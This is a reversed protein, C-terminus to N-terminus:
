ILPYTLLCPQRHGDGFIRQRTDHESGALHQRIEFQESFDRDLLRSMVQGTRACVIYSHIEEEAAVAAERDQQDHDRRLQQEDGILNLGILVYGQDPDPSDGRYRGGLLCELQDAAIGPTKHFIVKHQQAHAAFVFLQLM